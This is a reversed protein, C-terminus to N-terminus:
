TGQRTQGTDTPKLLVVSVDETGRVLYHLLYLSCEVEQLSDVSDNPSSAKHLPSAKHTLLSQPHPPKTSHPHLAVDMKDILVKLICQKWSYM